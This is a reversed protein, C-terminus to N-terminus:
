TRARARDPRRDGSRFARARKPLARRLPRGARGGSAADGVARQYRRALGPRCRRHRPRQRPAKGRHRGGRRRGEPRGPRRARAAPQLRDASPGSRGRALRDAAPSRRRCGARRLARHGPADLGCRRRDTCAARARRQRVRARRLGPGAARARALAQPGRDRCARGPSSDLRRRRHRAGPAGAAGGGGGGPRGVLRGAHPRPGLPQPHHRLAAHGDLGQLRVRLLRRHRPARCGGGGHPARAPRERAGRFRPLAALGPHHTPGPGLYQGQRRLPHRPAAISRGPRPPRRGRIRRGPGARCRGARAVAARSRSSRHTGSAM